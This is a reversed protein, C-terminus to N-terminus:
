KCLFYVNQDGGCATHVSYPQGCILDGLFSFGSICGPGTTKSCDPLSDCIEIINLKNDSSWTGLWAKQTTAEQTGDCNIDYSWDRAPPLGSGPNGLDIPLAFTRSPDPARFANMDDCDSSGAIPQVRTWGCGDKDPPWFCAKIGITQPAYGDHDCDQFWFDGANDDVVGNCDDDKGNCTEQPPNAVHSHTCKLSCTDATGSSGDDTCPDGDDCSAPCPKSSGAECEEGPDLTGDGCKAACDNDMAHNCGTPCCGDGSNCSTIPTAGCKLDCTSASGTQTSSMCASPKSCAPCNGDCVEGPDVHNDGCRPGPAPMGAPPPMVPTMGAAGVSGGSGAVIGGVVPDVGLSGAGGVVGAWAIDLVSGGVGAGHDHVGGSDAGGRGSDAVASDAEGTQGHGGGGSSGGYGGGGKGAEAVEVQWSRGAVTETVDPDEDAGATGGPVHCVGPVTAQSGEPCKDDGCGLLAALIMWGISRMCWDDRSDACAARLTVPMRQFREVRALVKARESM